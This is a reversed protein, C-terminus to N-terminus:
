LNTENTPLKESVEFGTGGIKGGPVFFRGVKPPVTFGFVFCCKVRRGPLGREKELSRGRKGFRTRRGRRPKEPTFSKFNIRSELSREEFSLRL